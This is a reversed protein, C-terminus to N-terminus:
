QLFNHTYEQISVILLRKKPVKVRIRPPRWVDVKKKWQMSSSFIILSKIITHAVVKSGYVNNCDILQCM